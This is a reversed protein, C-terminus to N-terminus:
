PFKPLRCWYLPRHQPNYYQFREGNWTMIDPIYRQCGERGTYHPNPYLVAFDTYRETPLPATQPYPLWEVM